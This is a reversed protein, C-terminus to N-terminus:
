TFHVSSFLLAEFEDPPLPKAFLYGQAYDCGVSALLDRQERTEVGEAIVKLGLKHAMVIIAESLAMESSGPSLNRIFSQDIKLYDIDFKNLYALSSYGTGFDDIAIQIGEDRCGLLAQAIAPDTNLLLGETIEIVVSHGPLGLENLYALWAIYSAADRHFQVPSKNVSIQFANHLSTKWRKIWRVSEKFVWDGIEHILGTEEALSIFEGPLVLGRQPHHWRLLAEAKVIRGSGLEVIPQFYVQFQSAALAGRLDTILRLRNQAAEQLAPTFYSYRNRGQSKALYMAQDANRFLVDIESTDGPYMTIGISASVYVEEDGLRFPEVLNELISRAIREVTGAEGDEINSLLVTFEDGGLRAVSDTERVCSCIRRAAEVLLSDGRDHGLTDNVEKFHDLDIFLLALQSGARHAKKIEQSVREYFMSRNPLQTLLDFNAQKWILEESQKRNTIDLFLAVYRHPLGNENFITNITVLAPYAEGNKRRNWVEGQWHGVTDIVQKIADFTVQEVNFIHSHHGVVDEPAYGTVKTFAPNVTIVIGNAGTVSMAESSNEYVLSALQLEDEALKRETIDTSFGHWVISEDTLKEPRAEGLMWRVGQKPLVVRYEHHWPLLSQASLQFSAAINEADDPHLFSFLAFADACVKASSIGYIKEVSDSIFPCCFRGDPYLRFQFIVGPVQASIKALLDHSQQLKTSLHKRETIDLMLGLVQFEDNNPSSTVANEVERREGSKTIISIEHRTTGLKGALRLKQTRGARELDDPHIIVSIDSLAKLEETSYGTIACFASNMFVLRGRNVAFLGVGADEHADFLADRTTEAHKRETIDINTGILRLANGDADRSAVMAHGRIWKWSGDKCAMRFEMSATSVKRDFLEQTNATLSPMDDPHVRKQWEEVRNTIENESLGLMERWRRSYIAEGTQINWDTVGAGLGELALSWREESEQLSKTLAEAMQLTRQRTSALLWVLVSLLLSIILGSILLLTSVGPHGDLEALTLQWLLLTITLSCALVIWAM